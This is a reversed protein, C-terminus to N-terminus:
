HLPVLMRTWIEHGGVYNETRINEHYYAQVIVPGFNYGVMPGIAYKAADTNAIDVMAGGSAPSAQDKEVQTLAFGGFGVTWNEITKTVSYEAIFQDGSRYDQYAASDASKEFNHDYTLLLNVAWGDRLWSIGLGPELAWYRNSNKVAMRSDKDGIPIWIGLQAAVHFDNPLSWSLVVPEFLTDYLGVGSGINTGNAIPGATTTISDFPQALVMAFDAGAFQVGPVWELIPVDIFADLQVASKNAGPSYLKTPTFLTENVFYLGTPPLAGSTLGETVGPLRTTWNEAALATGGLTLASLVLTLAVHGKM